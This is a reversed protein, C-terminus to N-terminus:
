AIGGQEHLASCARQKELMFEAFQLDHESDIDISREVPMRYAITSRDVLLGHSLFRETMLAYIVGNLTFAPPLDQRRKRSNEEGLLPTMRGREDLTFSWYPSKSPETVSVVGPAGRGHMYDLADDIDRATRLPNTPQLVVVIDYGPLNDLAHRVVEPTTAEDSALEAPRMFPVDGGCARALAAIEPDDTSVVARDIFGSRSAAGITWEILPRGRLPLINKRPLGKSGGRAPIVALVRHTGIM